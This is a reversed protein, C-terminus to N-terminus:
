YILCTTGSLMIVKTSHTLGRVLWGANAIFNEKATRAVTEETARAALEVPPAAAPLLEPPAPPSEEEEETEVPAATPLKSLVPTRAPAAAPTAAM